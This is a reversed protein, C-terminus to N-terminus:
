AWTSDKRAAKPHRTIARGATSMPAMPADVPLGRAAKSISESLRWGLWWCAGLQGGKGVKGMVGMTYRGKNYLIDVFWRITWVNNSQEGWWYSMQSCAGAGSNPYKDVTYRVGGYETCTRHILSLTVLVSLCKSFIKSLIPLFLKIVQKGGM